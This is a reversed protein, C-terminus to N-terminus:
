LVEGNLDAVFRVLAGHATPVPEGNAFGKCQAIQWRGAYRVIEAMAGAELGGVTPLKSGPTAPRVIEVVVKQVYLCSAALLAACNSFRRGAAVM